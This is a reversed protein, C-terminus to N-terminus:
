SLHFSQQGEEMVQKWRQKFVALSSYKPLKILNMCTMVSPLYDDPQLPSAVPRPALRLPPHLASFGGLPLRSAGTAFQLFQRRETKDLSVLFEIFMGVEPSSMLLGQEVSISNQVATATWYADDAGTHGVLCCLEDATFMLLSRSSLVRDFGECFASVQAQIGSFMTWHVVLDIYTHVNNITVPIEAGGPRLEIEPFGPLTFDLALDDVTSQDVPHRLSASEAQKQAPSLDTRMYLASKADVFAQLYHLSKALPADVSEIQNWSWANISSPILSSQLHHQVATWFAAHLPIDLIRGDILGKAILHGTFKFLQIIRDSPPLTDISRNQKDSAPDQKPSLPAPFLGHPAYVYKSKCENITREDRWLGLEREQLCRSITTYFELTPGVGSGVEDYYEVELISKSTGYLDLMKLASELMHRRSIRVKQRQIHGLPIQINDSSRSGTEHLHSRARTQWYNINRSYGFCTAQFFALRTEFSLLFPAINILATTEPTRRLLDYLMRLLRVVTAGSSGIEISDTQVNSVLPYAETTTASPGSEVFFELEFTQMWPNEGKLVPSRECLDYIVRFINDSAKVVTKTDSVRLIFEMHWSGSRNLLDSSTESQNDESKAEQQAVLGMGAEGEDSMDSEYSPQCRNTDLNEFLGAARIDIGSAQAIM